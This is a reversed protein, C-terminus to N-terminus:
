VKVQNKIEAYVNDTIVHPIRRGKQWFWSYQQVLPQGPSNHRRAYAFDSEIVIDPHLSWVGRRQTFVIDFNALLDFGFANAARIPPCHEPWGKGAPRKIYVEKAAVPDLLDQRFKFYHLM